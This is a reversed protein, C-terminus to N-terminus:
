HASSIYSFVQGFSLESKQDQINSIGFSTCMHRLSFCVSFDILAVIMGPSFAPSLVFVLAPTMARVRDVRSAKGTISGNRSDGPRRSDLWARDVSRRPDISARTHANSSNNLAMEDLMDGDQYDLDLPEKVASSGTCGMVYFVFIVIFVGYQSQFTSM